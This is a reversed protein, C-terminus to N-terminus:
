GESTGLGKKDQQNQLVMGHCSHSWGHPVRIMAPCLHRCRSAVPGQVDGCSATSSPWGKTLMGSCPWSLHHEPRTALPQLQLPTQALCPVAAAPLCHHFCAALAWAPLSSLQRAQSPSPSSPGPRVDRHRGLQSLKRPAGVQLQGCPGRM